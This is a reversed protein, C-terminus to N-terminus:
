TVPVFGNCTWNEIFRKWLALVRQLGGMTPMTVYLLTEASPSVEEDDAAEEDLDEDDSLGDDQAEALWELGAARAANIFNAVPGIVEFVLARDPSAESPRTSM